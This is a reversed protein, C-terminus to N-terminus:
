SNLGEFFWADLEAGIKLATVGAPIILLANANVLSRLNGSGQHGTLRAVWFGDEHTAFIRLYSERGDSEISELLRVKRTLRAEDPLGSMKRLAPKVFVQFSVYASVPNGPLGFYPVGGYSGFALPKGPRMNVRWLTLQGERELVARVFDFAGVSVGGTSLFLDVGQAVAARLSQRVAETTDPVIGLRLIQGGSQAILAELVYSNSEYIKGEELPAGLSLLEDGPSMLGVRPRRYVSIEPMGLMALVGVDQPRLRRNPNLVLEGLRVDQGRSRVNEGLPVAVYVQVYKPPVSGPDRLGFDTDEVRVVADAGRPMAAGTMIRASQGAEVTIQPATGAPIDAIVELLVPSQRDADRIDGARVAFGDMSSNDFVPLDIQSSIPEALVRGAAETLPIREIDIPSFVAMLQMQAQPVSTLDTTKAMIGASM